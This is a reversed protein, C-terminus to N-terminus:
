DDDRRGASIVSGCPSSGISSAQGSVVSCRAEARREDGSAHSQASRGKPPRHQRSRCSRRRGRRLETGQEIGPRPRRDHACLGSHAGVDASSRPM